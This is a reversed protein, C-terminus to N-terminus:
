SLSIWYIFQTGETGSRDVRWYDDKKVPMTLSAHEIGTKEDVGCCARVTTPTASSDTYGHLNVVDNVGLNNDIGAIVFGDTAAQYNTAFSKTADWSGLGTSPGTPGLPGTPGTAGTSGGSGQPGTPGTAGTNGQPGTAGQPGTPGTAGVDGQPGTAGAPGQPGTPGTAGVVGQPGTPGTVGTEPSYLTIASSHAGSSFDLTLRALELRRHYVDNDNLDLQVAPNLTWLSVLKSIDPRPWYKGKASSSGYSTDSVGFANLSWMLASIFGFDFLDQGNSNDDNIIGAAAFNVGYTARLTNMNVGRTAWEAKGEYGNNGSYATTNIPFSELLIWDDETLSSEVLDSNWTENPYSTDEDTGLIHNTNWANAFVYNAVTGGHVYDVRENFEARTTGNDYGAEDIFIGDVGLDGWQDVKTQFNALSQNATVYGFILVDPNLAQIRPIIIQTNSYDGHGTNQLGDGFVLINYKSLDQAVNENDWGNDASNFSNLWGYYILMDHPSHYNATQVEQNHWGLKTHITEINAIRDTNGQVLGSAGLLPTHDPLYVPNESDNFLERRNILPQMIGFPGEIGSRPDTVEAAPNLYYEVDTPTYESNNHVAILGGAPGTTDGDLITKEPASLQSEFTIHILCDTGGTLIDHILTGNETSIEELITTIDTSAEIEEKLVGPNVRGNQFDDAVDYTYTYSM